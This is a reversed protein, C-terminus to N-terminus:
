HSRTPLALGLCFAPSFVVSASNCANIAAMSAPAASLLRNVRNMSMALLIKALIYTSRIQQFPARDGKATEVRARTPAGAPQM